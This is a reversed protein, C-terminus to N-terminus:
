DYADRRRYVEVYSDCKPCTLNTVMSCEQYLVPQFDEEIDAYEKFSECETWKTDGNYALDNYKIEFKRKNNYDKDTFFRIDHLKDSFNNICWFRQSTDNNKDEWIQKAKFTKLGLELCFKELELLSLDIINQRQM